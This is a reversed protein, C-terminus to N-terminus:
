GVLNDIDSKMLPSQAYLVIKHSKLEERNVMLTVDSIKENNYIDRFSQIKDLDNVYNYELEM